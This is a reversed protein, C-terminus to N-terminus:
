AVHRSVAITTVGGMLWPVYGLFLGRYYGAQLFVQGDVDWRGAATFLAAQVVWTAAIWLLPAVLVAGGVSRWTDGEAPSGARPPQLAALAALLLAVAVWRARELLHADIWWPAGPGRHAVSVLDTLLALLADGVLAVATAVLFARSLPRLPLPM